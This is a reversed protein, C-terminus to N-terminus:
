ASDNFCVFITMITILSFYVSVVAENRETTILEIKKVNESLLILHDDKINKMEIEHNRSEIKMKEDNEKKNQELQNEFIKQRDLGRYFYFIFFLFVSAFLYSSIFLFLFLYFSIFLTAAKFPFNFLNSGM